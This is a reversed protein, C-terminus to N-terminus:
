GAAVLLPFSLATCIAVSSSPGLFDM